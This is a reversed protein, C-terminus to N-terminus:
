STQKKMTNDKPKYNLKHLIDKLYKSTDAENCCRSYVSDGVVVKVYNSETYVCGIDSRKVM